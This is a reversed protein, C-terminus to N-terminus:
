VRGLHIVEGEFLIRIIYNKLSRKTRLDAFGDESVSIRFTLTRTGKKSARVILQEDTLNTSIRITTGASTVKRTFSATPKEEEGQIEDPINVSKESTDEQVGDARFNRKDLNSESEFWSKISQFFSLYSEASINLDSPTPPTKKYSYQGPGFNLSVLDAFKAAYYSSTATAVMGWDSASVRTNSISLNKSEVALWDRMKAEFNALHNSDNLDGSLFGPPQSSWKYQGVINPGFKDIIMNDLQLTYSKLISLEKEYIQEKTLAQEGAKQGNDCRSPNLIKQEEAFWKNVLVIYNELDSVSWKALVPPTPIETFPKYLCTGFRKIAESQLAGYFEKIKVAAATGSSVDNSSSDNEPKAPNNEASQLSTVKEVVASYRVWWNDPDSSSQIFSSGYAKLGTEYYPAGFCDSKYRTEMYIQNEYILKKANDLHTKFIYTAVDSKKAIKNEKMWNVLFSESHIINSSQALHTSIQQLRSEVYELSKLCEDNTKTNAQSINPILALVFALIVIKPVRQMAFIIVIKM